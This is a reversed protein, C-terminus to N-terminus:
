VIITVIGSLHCDKKQNIFLSFQGVTVLCICYDTKQICQVRIYQSLWFSARTNQDPNERTRGDDYEDNDAIDMRDFIYM